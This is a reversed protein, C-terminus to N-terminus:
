KILSKHLHSITVRPRIAESGSGKLNYFHHIIVRPRIAESGSGKLNHLHYIVVRPCIAESGSGKLNYLHHIVVRLRIAESGSGKLNHLHHIVVRPRIAESGSGKLHPSSPHSSKPMHGRLRVGQSQLSSSHNSKPTHGDLRIGQSSKQLGIKYGRPMWSGRFVNRKLRSGFGTYVGIVALLNQGSSSGNRQMQNRIYGQSKALTLEMEVEVLRRGLDQCGLTMLKDELSLVKPRQGSTKQLLNSFVMRNEADQWLRGAVYLWALCSFFAMILPSRSSKPPQSKWRREQKMASALTERLQHGNSSSEM